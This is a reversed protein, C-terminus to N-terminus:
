IVSEFHNSQLSAMYSQFKENEFRDDEFGKVVKLWVGWKLLIM